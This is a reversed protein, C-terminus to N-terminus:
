LGPGMRGGGRHKGRGGGKAQRQLSRLKAYQDATLITRVEALTAMRERDLKARAAVVEDMKKNLAAKDVTKAELLEELEIQRKSMEARLDAMRTRHARYVAKVKDVQEESLGAQQQIEPNNWWRGKPVGGFAESWSPAALLLAAVLMSMWM